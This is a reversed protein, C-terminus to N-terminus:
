FETVNSSWLLVRFINLLVFINFFLVHPSTGITHRVGGGGGGGAPGSPEEGPGPTGEAGVEARGWECVNQGSAM